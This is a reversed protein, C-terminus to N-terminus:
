LSEVLDKKHYTTMGFAEHWFFFNCILRKQSQRCKFLEVAVQCLPALFQISAPVLSLKSGFSGAYATHTASYLYGCLYYMEVSAGTLHM